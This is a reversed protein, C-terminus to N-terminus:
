PLVVPLNKQYITNITKFSPSLDNLNHFHSAFSYKRFSLHKPSLSHHNHQKRYILQYHHRTCYLFRTKNPNASISILKQLFMSHLRCHQVSLIYVTFVYIDMYIDMYMLGFNLILFSMALYKLTQVITYNTVCLYKVKLTTPELGSELQEM